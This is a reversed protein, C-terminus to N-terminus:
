SVGRYCVWLLRTLASTGTAEALGSVKQGYIDTKNWAFTYILNVAAPFWKQALRGEITVTLHVKTIGPPITSHTLVIRLM